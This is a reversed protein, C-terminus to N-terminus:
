KNEAAMLQLAIQKSIEAALDVDGGMSGRAQVSVESVKGDVDSVKVWVNRQNIRAKFTNNVSNDVLLKGNRTLVQRTADSLPQVPKEYRSTITDKSFPDGGTSHGDETGVCGAFCALVVSCVLSLLFKIKM